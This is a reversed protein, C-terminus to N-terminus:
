CEGSDPVTHRTHTDGKKVTTEGKTLSPVTGEEARSMEMRGEKGLMSVGYNWETLAAYAHQTNACVYQDGSIMYLQM